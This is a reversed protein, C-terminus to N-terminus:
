GNAWCGSIWMEPQRGAKGTVWVLCVEREGTDGAATEGTKLRHLDFGVYTWGATEPTVHHVKGTTGSPSVHLHSKTM